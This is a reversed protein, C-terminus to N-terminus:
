KSPKGFKLTNFKFGNRGQVKTGYVEIPGEWTHPEGLVGIIQKVSTFVGVSTAAYATGDDAILTIRAAENLQGTEENVLEVGQMIVDKLMFAKDLNDDLQVANNMGSLIELKAAQDDGKISSYFAAEGNNINAIDTAVSRGQFDSDATVLEGQAPTTNKTAM